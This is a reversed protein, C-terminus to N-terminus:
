AGVPFGSDARVLRAKREIVVNLGNTGLWNRIANPAVNCFRAAGEITPSLALGDAVMAQVSEYGRERAERELAGRTNM